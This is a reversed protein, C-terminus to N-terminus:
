LLLNPFFLLIIGILVMIIGGLLKSLGSYKDLLPSNMAFLAFGFIIFDDIMFFIDYVLIYMYKEFGSINAVALMQTFVAPLGASCVFEISNVGIALVITAFVSAVTIPSNAITKIKNMTLKRSELNGVECTIKGGKKVFTYISYFGFWLAFGAIGYMIWRSIGIFKFLELWGALIAFYMIAETAVFTGVIYYMKRKDELSAVLTILYILVWMACPNFGDVFGIIISSLLLSSDKLNIESGIFPVTFTKDLKINNEYNFTSTLYYSLFILGIVITFIIIRVPSIKIEKIKKIGKNLKSKM